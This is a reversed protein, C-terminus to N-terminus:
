MGAAAYLQQMVARMDEPIRARAERAIDQPIGFRAEALAGAIAAQTDADGGLSVANRIADEFGGAELACILAEPVSGQCTVDFRYRPRIDEVTRDLDYGTYAAVAQRISAAPEGQRALFIAMVTAQAGKIGEPHDHTVIATQRALELAAALDSALLAAPACRMAAGNGYSGYPANCDSLLWQRFRWGYGADPYRRGWDKLSEVLSRGSLLADAVAVTLVSDDTPRANPHILPGFDKRKIPRGEYVAGALDGILAGWM